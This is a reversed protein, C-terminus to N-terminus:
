TWGWKVSQYFLKRFEKCILLPNLAGQENDYGHNYCINISHYMQALCQELNKLQM